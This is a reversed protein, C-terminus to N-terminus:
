EEPVMSFTETDEIVDGLNKFIDYYHMVLNTLNYEKDYIERTYAIMEYQLEEFNSLVYDLKEEKTKAELKEQSEIESYTKLLWGKAVEELINDDSQVPDIKEFKEFKGWFMKNQRNGVIKCDWM